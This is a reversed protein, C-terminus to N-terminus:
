DSYEKLPYWVPNVLVEEPYYSKDCRECYYEIFSEEHRAIAFDNCEPCFGFAGLLKKDGLFM